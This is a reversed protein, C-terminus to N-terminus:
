SARVDVVIPQRAVPPYTHARYSFRSETSIESLGLTESKICPPRQYVVFLEVGMPLLHQSRAELMPPFRGPLLALGEMSPQSASLGSGCQWYRAGAQVMILADKTEM